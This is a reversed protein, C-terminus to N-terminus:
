AHKEEVMRDITEMVGNSGQEMQTLAAFIDQQVGVDHEWGKDISALVQHASRHV